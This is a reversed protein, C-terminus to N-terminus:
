KKNLFQTTVVGNNYKVRFTKGKKLKKSIKKMGIQSVVAEMVIGVQAALGMCDSPNSKYKTPRPKKM